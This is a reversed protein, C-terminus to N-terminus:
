WFLERYIQIFHATPYDCASLKSHIWKVESKVPFFHLHIITEWRYFSFFCCNSIIGEPEWVLPIFAAPLDSLGNWQHCTAKWCLPRLTKLKIYIHLSVYLLCKWQQTCVCVFSGYCTSWQIEMELNCCSQYLRAEVFLYLHKHWCFGKLFSSTINFCIPIDPRGSFLSRM